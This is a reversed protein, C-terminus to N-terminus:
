YRMGSLADLAGQLFYGAALKDVLESRRKRSLDAEKEMMRTVAVTSLREDWLLCPLELFHAADKAFQRVSQCRPGESGDMNIPYGVVLGVVQQDRLMAEIAELDLTLKRRQVTLQGSAIMRGADSVAVGITESGVDLGMLRGTAPLVSAFEAISKTTSLFPM